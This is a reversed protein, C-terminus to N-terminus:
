GTRALTSDPPQLESPLHENPSWGLVDRYAKEISRAITPWQYEDNIRERGRIGAQGRIEPDRALLDLMRRLDDQDGCRFTFGAGAVVENNEPIDSTLVCVGAAMADLLALSLGEIESPLVFIAAHSVLEALDGGSVWPLFRIRNSEHARLGEVYSNSHSSGGALVLKMSTDLAEFARILLHCNKEPSFRGLFLAYHDGTLGWEDLKRPPCQPQLTAGNPIYITNRKYHTRYHKQLTRSVVVTANPSRIAAAEGLQLLSSAILGWKSRQWDLGQVTVVTKKGVLRPLFSFLAPGLCHYHVVDCDSLMAHATSLLTHIATELHKFRLTPLRVVRMGDHTSIPPTFYSRCYVTVEVGLQTLERGAQEYFSEIGSYKSIVGRGGIFAVRPNRKPMPTIKSAVSQLSKKTSTLRKYLELLKEMYQNPDHETRVRSRAARGMREVLDARGFLFEISHALQAGNGDFYLLGTVGAEVFERRSGLDSAIVPKGWSYSELISKGLTEFAHSPFVSFRCGAIMTQLKEGQIMGAFLTRSLGLEKALSELRHREPGEGAIVLPIHPLRAMARLLDDVGKEPSLRGFYLVYGEDSTFSKEDPLAHPLTQFHPLVEIRNAPLGGAILKTRVFKSPALFLDVCREYTRLWKHLYAEAALVVASTRPGVYCGKSIANHFAGRSCLECARGNAVFNYTPCLIKFDNVHYLVPIGCQKLEWLISPSLHHYIGRIHAVDPLFNAVCKRMAGRVSHSYLAHAAMHIKKLFGANPDKFDVRPVLYSHGKFAPTHGHDMSFLATEHGRQNMQRILDFLYVETGSFPFDYKNCYLIRVIVRRDLFVRLFNM